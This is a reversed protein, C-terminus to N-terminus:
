IKGKLRSVLAAAAVIKLGDGILFPMVCLTLAAIITTGTIFSFWLTGFTYCSLLGAIMGAPNKIKGSLYACIIYGAIYGGTPGILVAFGGTGGNFVPLGIAGLLVYVIAAILGNKAGTLAGAVFIPLLALNMPVPSFPLPIFIYSCAATLAAFLSCTIMDKTKM